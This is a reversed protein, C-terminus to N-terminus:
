LYKPLPQDRPGESEWMDDIARHLEGTLSRTNWFRAWHELKGRFGSWACANRVVIWLLRYLVVLLIEEFTYGRREWTKLEKWYCKGLHHALAADRTLEHFLRRISPWAAKDANFMEDWVAEIQDRTAKRGLGFRRRIETWEAGVCALLDWNRTYHGPGFEM